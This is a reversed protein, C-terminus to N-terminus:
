LEGEIGGKGDNGTLEEDIQEREAADSMTRKNARLEAVKAELAATRETIITRFKATQGRLEEEYVQALRDGHEHIEDIIPQVRRTEREHRTGFIKAIAKLM